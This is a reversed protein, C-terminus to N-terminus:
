FLLNVDELIELNTERNTDEIKNTKKILYNIVLEKSLNLFLLIWLNFLLLSCLFINAFMLLRYQRPRAKERLFFLM